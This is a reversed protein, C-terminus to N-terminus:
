MVVLDRIEPVREKPFPIIPNKCLSTPVGSWETLNQWPVRDQWLAGQFDHDHSSPCATGEQPIDADLDTVEALTDTGEHCALLSEVCYWLYFNDIVCWSIVVCFWM